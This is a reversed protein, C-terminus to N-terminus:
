CCIFKQKYEMKYVMDDFTKILIKFIFNIRISFCGM